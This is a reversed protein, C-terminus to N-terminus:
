LFPKLEKIITLTVLVIILISFASAMTFHVRKRSASRSRLRSIVSRRLTIRKGKPRGSPRSWPGSRTDLSELVITLVHVTVSTSPVVAEVYQKM